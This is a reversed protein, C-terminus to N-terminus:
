AGAAKLAADIKDVTRLHPSRKGTELRCVTELRIGAADALDAQTWGLSRRRAAIQRAVIAQATEVAPYNGRENAPPLAPPDPDPGRRKALRAVEARLRRVEARLEAATMKEVKTSAM